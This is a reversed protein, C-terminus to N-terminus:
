VNHSEELSHCILFSMKYFNRLSLYWDKTILKTLEYNAIQYLLVTGLKAGKLGGNFDIRLEAQKTSNKVLPM